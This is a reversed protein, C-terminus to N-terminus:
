QLGRQNALAGALLHATVALKCYDEVLANHKADAERLRDFLAAKIQGNIQNAAQLRAIEERHRRKQNRGYRKSM